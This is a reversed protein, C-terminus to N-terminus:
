LGSRAKRLARIDPATPPEVTPAVDPATTVTRNQAPRDRKPAGDYKQLALAAASWTWANAWVLGLGAAFGIALTDWRVAAFDLSVIDTIAMTVSLPLLLFFVRFFEFYFLLFYTVFFIAFLPLFSQGLGDFFTRGAAGKSLSRAIAAMPVALAAPIASIFVLTFMATLSFSNRSFARQVSHEANELWRISGLDPLTWETLLIAIVTAAIVAAKKAIGLLIGYAAGYTVLFKLDAKPLAGSLSLAARMGVLTFLGAFIPASVYSSLGMTVVSAIVSIVFAVLFIGLAPLVMRLTVAFSMLFSKVILSM